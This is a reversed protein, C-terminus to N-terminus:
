NVATQNRGAEKARYLAADARDLAESIQRDNEINIYDVGLSITFKIISGDININQKETLLRLKETISQAGNKDTFPLLIAFEDGGFRSVIDSNRTHRVLLSALSKIVKDGVGHGYTDNIVKFKDIDLMIVSFYKKERRAIKLFSQGVENFYRRNYLNTLHDRTAQKQLQKNAEVLDATREKVRIELTQNQEQIDRILECFCNALTGIEDKRAVLLTADPHHEKDNIFALLKQLPTLLHHAFFWCLLSGTFFILSFIIIFQRSLHKNISELTEVPLTYFISGEQLPDMLGLRNAKAFYRKNNFNIISQSDKQALLMQHETWQLPINQLILGDRNFTSAIIARRRVMTIGIKSNESINHIMQDNIAYGTLIIAKLKRDEGKQRIFGSSYIIFNNMEQFISIGAKGELVALKILHQHIRSQGVQGPDKSHYLIKGQPNLLILTDTNSKTALREMATKIATKNKKDLANILAADRSIQDIFLYGTQGIQKFANEAMIGAGDIQRTLLRHFDKRIIHQAALLAIAMGLFLLTSFLLILHVDTRHHFAIKRSDKM